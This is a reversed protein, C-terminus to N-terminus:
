YYLTFGLYDEKKKMLDLSNNSYQLYVNKNTCISASVHTYFRRRFCMDLTIAYYSISLCSIVTASDTVTITVNNFWM